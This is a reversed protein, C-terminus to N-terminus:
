ICTNYVSDTAEPAPHRAPAGPHPGATTQTARSPTTSRRIRHAKGDTAFDICSVYGLCRSRSDALKYSPGHHSVGMAIPSKVKSSLDVVRFQAEPAFAVRAPSFFLFLRRLSDYAM